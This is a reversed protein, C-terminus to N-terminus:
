QGVGADTLVAFPQFGDTGIRLQRHRWQLVVVQPAVVPEPGLLLTKAGAPTQISGVLGPALWVRPHSLDESGDASPPAGIFAFGQATPQWRIPLDNARSQARAVELLSALRLAERELPQDSDDRLSLVVGATALAIIALVVLLELLTFGRQHKPM